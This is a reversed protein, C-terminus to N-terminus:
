LYCRLLSVSYKYETVQMVFGIVHESNASFKMAMANHYLVNHSNILSSFKLFHCTGVHGIKAPGTVFLSNHNVNGGWCDKRTENSRESIGRRRKLIKLKKNMQQLQSYIQLSNNSSQSCIM